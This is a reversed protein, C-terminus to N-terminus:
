EEDDEDEEWEDDGWDEMEEDYCDDCYAEGAYSNIEDNGCLWGCKDCAFVISDILAYQESTLENFDEKPFKMNFAGQIGTDGRGICDYAFKRLEENTIMIM